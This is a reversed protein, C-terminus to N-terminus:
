GRFNYSSAYQALTEEDEKVEGNEVVKVLKGSEDATLEIEYQADRSYFYTRYGEEDCHEESTYDPMQAKSSKLKGSEYYAQETYSEAAPDKYVSKKMTGNEYNEYESYAGTQANNWVSKKVVGNEYCEAESREGTNTNGNIIISYTDYYYSESYSGDPHRIIESVLNGNEDYSSERYYGDSDTIKCYILTGGYWMEGERHGNDLYHCETCSGDPMTTISKSIGLSSTYYYSDEVTGNPYETIRRVEPWINPDEGPMNFSTIKEGTPAVYTHIKCEEEPFETEWISLEETPDPTQAAEGSVTNQTKGSNVPKNQVSAGDSQQAGAGCACLSFCLVLSLLISIIKEM